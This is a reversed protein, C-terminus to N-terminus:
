GLSVQELAKRLDDVRSKAESLLRQETTLRGEIAKVQMTGLKPKSAAAKTKEEHQDSLTTLENKLISHRHVVTAVRGKLCESDGVGSGIVQDKMRNLEKFWKVEFESLTPSYSDMLAQLVKGVREVLEKQRKVVSEVRRNLDGGEAGRNKLKQLLEQVTKVTAMQRDLERKQLDVRSSVQAVLNELEGTKTQTSEAQQGLFRLTDPTMFRNSQSRPIATRSLYKNLNPVTFPVSTLLSIYAPPQNPNNPTSTLGLGFQPPGQPKLPPPKTPSVKPYPLGPAEETTPSLRLPLNLPILQYAVTLAYVTYSLFPSNIIAMAIVPASSKQNASYTSLLQRVETPHPEALVDELKYGVSREEARDRQMARVLVDVWSRMALSHIGFSHFIYIVDGYLPDAHFMPRNSDIAPSSSGVVSLIGLDITEYVTFAPLEETDLKETSQTVEWQAEIKETDLSVDVKGDGYVILLVGLKEKTEAPDDDTDLADRIENGGEGLEVYAIDSADAGGDELEGPAPQFLFPGQRAPTYTFAPISSPSLVNVLRSPPAVSPALNSPHPPPSLPLQKILSNVYKFQLEYIYSPMTSPGVSTYLDRKATVFCELALIYSEPVVAKTPLFPSMAYVDGSTMLAYVTLPGWDAKGQGLCFSVVEEGLAEDAQYGKRHTRPPIFHLTQLPEEADEAMNYERFAGDATMVLLSSGGEGWPHWDVKVIRPAGETAHYYQGVQHCKCDVKTTVLKAYAPRPLVVVALQNLGVVALLKGGPSLVLQEIDFDINTTHLIKYAAKSQSSSARADVLSTIRLQSGVAVILDSGRVVMVNRKNPPFDELEDDTQLDSLSLSGPDEVSFIPHHADM